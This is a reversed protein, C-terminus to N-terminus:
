ETLFFDKEGFGYEDAHDATLFDQMNRPEVPTEGEVQLLHNQKFGM